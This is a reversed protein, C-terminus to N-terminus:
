NKILCLTKIFTSHLEYYGIFQDPDPYNQPLHAPIVSFQNKNKDIHIEVDHFNVFQKTLPYQCKYFSEKASFIIAAFQQRLSPMMKNIETLEHDTCIRNWLQSKIRKNTEVDVGVSKYDSNACVAVICRKHDHSISGVIGEPWIPTRDNNQLIPFCNVNFNELIKKALLRGAKFEEKRKSIMGETISLEDPYLEGRINHILDVKIMLNDFDPFM